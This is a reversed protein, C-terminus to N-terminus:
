SAESSMIELEAWWLPSLKPTAGDPGMTTIEKLRATVERMTPRQSPDPHVCDKVVQLLKELEEEQFSKLTPDVMERSPQDMKLYDSAWDSSPGNDVSYPLRGTIMEFLIVGLSYVNSEPDASPTELLEMVVSGMKAATVENWFSFDSIKAAYDETLYISSSQLKQHAIPPNLQHMYELCYALGMAIRLRMGWDLHEAEKIHLHEFLTGNPAYEFVMMRTFPKDEECFGILNVFNKHNVKSLTDIKKRFQAELNKSWDGLSAVGSSTVAIEVGSSLTGKYVTGDSLSGIINSFDECATELEARNLKPVGTVFAKQLQGSLGTAWPKVTVVKHSRCFIIGMASIFIVLSSGLVGSLILVTYNKGYSSKNLMPSPAPAPSPVLASNSPPASVIMPPNSPVPSAPSPPLKPSLPGPWFKTFPSAAPSSLSFEAPSPSPPASPSDSPLFPSLSSSFSPSPSLSLSASSSPSLSASPSPSLSPSSLPLSEFGSKVNKEREKPPGVADVVQLVRRYSVDRPQATDGSISRSKGTPGSAASSLQNEDVQYESLMKLEYIEPSISGLFENNDLLLITLSQNNGFDSPFSGSFNNYGLDLVELEKLEGIEKPINGSFSNNRLIISKIFALKGVEPAMKGVLCLDRLNLIVVKGDSCEVGFWSCHDVEGGSDNWDSLAGFPDKVVSERFKLLALGESNLCWCLRLHQHLLSMVVMTMAARLKFRNFRWKGDM